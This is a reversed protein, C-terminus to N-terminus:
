APDPVGVGDRAALARDPHDSFVGDVGADFFARAQGASGRLTWVFVQLGAAHAAEVLGTSRPAPDDEGDLVMGREPGVADAYAAITRCDLRGERMVAPEVLQVLPLDTMPSLLRVFAEEFSQVWVRSAPHDLGHDRLTELLLGAIPLGRAAFYSPTKVEVHLGIRRGARHSEAAVLLLLEDFTMIRDEPGPAGLGRLEALTFDETFWGEVVKGAVLRTARRDAYQPRGAVDTTRSLENEHRVVLFGDSTMVLDTELADAGLRCALRYSRASHEPLHGPAGRHGIVLPVGGRRITM